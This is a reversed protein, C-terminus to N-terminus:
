IVHNIVLMPLLPLLLILLPVVVVVIGVVHNIMMEVPQQILGAVIVIADAELPVTNLKPYFPQYIKHRSSL